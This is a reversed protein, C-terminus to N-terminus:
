LYTTNKYHFYQSNKCRYLHNEVGSTPGPGIHSSLFKEISFKAFNAGRLADTKAKKHKINAWKSHGSM